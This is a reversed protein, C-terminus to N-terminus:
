AACYDAWATMLERRAGLKDGRQYRRFTDDSVQHSLAIKILTEDWGAEGSWTAFTSRMGHITISAGSDRDRYQKGGIRQVRELARRMKGSDLAGFVFEGGNHPMSRIIDAVRPSLPLCHDRRKKMRCAPVTWLGKEFDFEDWKAGSAEGSRLGTLTLVELCRIDAGDMTRVTAMFEPAESWHLSPHQVDEDTPKPLLHKLNEDWVFPNIEEKPFWRIARAYGMVQECLSRTKRATDPVRRWLPEIVKMAHETRIISVDMDGIV